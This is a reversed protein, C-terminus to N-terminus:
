WRRSLFLFRFMAAPGERVLFLWGACVAAAMEEDRSHPPINDRWWLFFHSFILSIFIWILLVTPQRAIYDLVLGQLAGGLLHHLKKLWLPVRFGWTSSAEKPTYIMNTLIRSISFRRASAAFPFDKVELEDRRKRHHQDMIVGGPLPYLLPPPPANVLM